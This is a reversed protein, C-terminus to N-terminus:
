KEQMVANLIQQYSFEWNSQTIEIALKDIQHKAFLNDTLSQTDHLLAIVGEFGRLKHHRFYRTREMNEILEQEVVPGRNNWVKRTHEALNDERLYILLPAIPTMIAEVQQVYETIHQSATDGQLFFWVALCYVVGEIIVVDDSNSIDSIFQRWRELSREIYTASSVRDFNPAQHQSGDWYQWWHLPHPVDEEYVVHTTVHRQRLEQELWRCATTKGSGSIGDIVILQPIIARKM